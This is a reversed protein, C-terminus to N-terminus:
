PDPIKAMMSTHLKNVSKKLEPCSAPSKLVKLFDKADVMRMEYATELDHFSRAAVADKEICKIAQQDNLRAHASLGALLVTLLTLMITSYRMMCGGVVLLMWSLCLLFLALDLVMLRVISSFSM